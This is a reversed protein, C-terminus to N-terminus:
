PKPLRSLLGKVAQKGVAAGIQAVEGVARVATTVTEVPGAPSGGADKETAWGAPPTDAAGPAPASPDPTPTREASAGNAPAPVAELKPKPRAAAPKKAGAAPKAKAAAPRKAAAAPTTAPAPTTDAATTTTDADTTAGTSESAAKVADAQSATTGTRKTSRRAPRSRPLSSLVERQPDDAMPRDNQRLNRPSPAAASM